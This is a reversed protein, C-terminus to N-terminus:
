QYHLVINNKAEVWFTLNIIPFEAFPPVDAKCAWARAAQKKVSGQADKFHELVAVDGGNESM